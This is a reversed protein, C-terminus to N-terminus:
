HFFFRVGLGAALSVDTEPAIDLMPAVKLFVDLPADEVLYVIGLPIRVSLRADDEEMKARAGIGYFLAFRGQDVDIHDYDHWIHDFHLDLAEDDTFSWAAAFDFATKPGLWIKGSLGTPEGLIVGLGFGSDATIAAGAQPAIAATILLGVLLILANRTMSEKKRHRPETLRPLGPGRDMVIGMLIGLHL